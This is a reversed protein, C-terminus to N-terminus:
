RLTGSLDATTQRTGNNQVSENRSYERVETIQAIRSLTNMFQSTGRNTVATYQGLGGNRGNQYTNEQIGRILQMSDANLRKIKSSTSERSGAQVPVPKAQLKANAKNEIDRENVKFYRTIRSRLDQMEQTLLGELDGKAFAIMDALSDHISYTGKEVVPRTREFEIQLDLNQLEADKLKQGGTMRGLWSVKRGQVVQKKQTLLAIKNKRIVNQIKHDIGRKTDILAQEDYLKVVGALEGSTCLASDAIGKFSELRTLAHYIEELSSNEGIENTGIEEKMKRINQSSAQIYKEIASADIASHFLIGITRSMKAHNKARSRLQEYNFSINQLIRDLNQVTESFKMGYESKKENRQVEEGQYRAEEASVKTAEEVIRSAEEFERQKELCLGQIYNKMMTSFADLEQKWTQRQALLGDMEKQLFKVEDRDTARELMRLKTKSQESSQQYDRGLKIIRTFDTRIKERFSEKEGEGFPRLQPAELEVDYYTYTRDSGVRKAQKIQSFPALVFESEERNMNEKGVFDDVDLFPMNDGVSIRLYGAEDYKCFRKAVNLDTSTSILRDYTSGSELSDAEKTSTGRYLRRPPQLMSGYKCMASYVNAVNDITALIEDGIEESTKEKELASTRIAGPLYWGKISSELYKIVDFSVLSNMTTHWANIYENVSNREEDTIQIKQKADELEM